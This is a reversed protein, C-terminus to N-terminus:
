IEKGCSENIKPAICAVGSTYTRDKTTPKRELQIDEKTRSEAKHQCKRKNEPLVDRVKKSNRRKMKASLYASLNPLPTICLHRLVRSVFEELGLNHTAVATSVRYVLSNSRSFHKFKPASEAIRMNLSENLQTSWPHNIQMLRELTTFKEQIERIFEVTIKDNDDTLDFVAHKKDIKGNSVCWTGCLTHDGCWHRLPADAQSQLEDLTLGKSQFIWYGIDVGMKKARAKNM